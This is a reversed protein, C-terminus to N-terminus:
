GHLASAPLAFRHRVDCGPGKEANLNYSNQPIASEDIVSRFDPANTLDKAFTYNALFSLGHSYRRRM